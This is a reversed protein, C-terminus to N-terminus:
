GHFYSMHGQDLTEADLIFVLRDVTIISRVFEFLMRRGTEDMSTRPSYMNAVHLILIYVNPHVLIESMQVIEDIRGFRVIM